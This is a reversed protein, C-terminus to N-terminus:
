SAPILRKGTELIKKIMTVDPLVLEQQQSEIENMESVNEIDPDNSASTGSSSVTVTNLYIYSCISAVVLLVLLVSRTSLKRM